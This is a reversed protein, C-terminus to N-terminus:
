QLAWHGINVALGNLTATKALNNTGRDIQHPCMGKHRQKAMNCNFCLIQVVPPYGSAKLELWERSCIGSYGPGFLERRRKSGDNNIHDISLFRRDALGCCVCRAGYADIIDNYLDRKRRRSRAKALENCRECHVLGPLSESPCKLCISNQRRANRRTNIRDLCTRCTKFDDAPSERKCEVCLGNEIATAVAKRSYEKERPRRYNRERSPRMQAIPRWPRTAKRTM